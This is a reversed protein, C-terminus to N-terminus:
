EIRIHALKQAIESKTEAQLIAQLLEVDQFVAMLQQLLTVQKEPDKIALLFVLRVPTYVDPMVMCHFPVPNKLIGVAFAAQNVHEPDTHPIAVSFGNIDLGTPLKAEREMVAAIYSERVYGKKQMEAGLQAIVDAENEAELSMKILDQDMKM